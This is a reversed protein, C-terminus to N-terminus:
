RVGCAALAAAVEAHSVDDVIVSEGLDVPLV